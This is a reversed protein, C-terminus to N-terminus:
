GGQGGTEIWRRAEALLALRDPAFDAAIWVAELRAMMAGVDPGAQLGLGILDRGKVPFEVPRWAAAAALRADLAAAEGVAAALMARRRFVGAGQRYLARRWAAADDGLDNWPPALAILMAREARSLRLATALAEGDGPALAALRLLPDPAAGLRREVALVPAVDVAPHGILVRFVDVGRMADLAVGPDPAALLRLLEVRVREASVRALGGVGDNCAALGNRDIAGVGYWAHFRFFRLIRLYDEHVRAEADGVFRVRGAHLDEWGGFYDYVCGRRDASMANITFDRRAADARWDDTFAVEAHRGDTEVDRRLTTIEFGRGEVVATITGHAIGTPVAKLGAAELRRATEEPALNTALDIDAVPRDLLADRVVGGVFRTEGGGGALADLVAATAPATLWPAAALPRGARRADSM